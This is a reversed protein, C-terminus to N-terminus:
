NGNFRQNAEKVLSLDVYDPSVTLGKTIIGLKVENDIARQTGAIDPLADPAHYTDAATYMYELDQPPLKTVLQAIAVAEAHNAPELLFHVARIHDEFFDVLAPRHAAIFDARMAWIQAQIRGEGDVARFLVRYKGETVFHEYRPLLNIMDVKGDDLMAPMTGFDTEVSTIDSDSIGHKHLMVRMASDGFSGIANTGVKRGKLDEVKRVPSNALVVYHISSTGPVGDQFVDAVMRVDLKANNIALALAPPGFAAISLDGIALAQIQPTSGRFRVGEATYSKGFHHFIEPHRKQLEDILSQMHTPATAWGIRLALPEASAATGLVAMATSILAAAAQRIVSM